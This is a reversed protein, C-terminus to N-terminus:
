EPCGATLGRGEGNPTYRFPPMCMLKFLCARVKVVFKLRPRWASKRSAAGHSSLHLHAAPRLQLIRMPLVTPTRSGATGIGACSLASAISSATGGKVSWHLQRNSECASMYPLKTELSAMSWGIDNARRDLVRSGDRSEQDGGFGHDGFQRLFVGACAAHRRAVAHHCPNR